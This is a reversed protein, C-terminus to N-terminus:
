LPFKSGPFHLTAFYDHETEDRRIIEVLLDRDPGHGYGKFLLEGHRLKGNYNSGMAWTHAGDNHLVPIDGVVIEPFSRQIAFKDNNECLSGVIDYKHDEVAYEKGMVTIHHYTGYMGPRPLDTMCADVGIYDRYTHKEHIATTVLYGFPGTMFRGNEMFIKLPALGNAVVLREYDIKMGESVEKTDVSIQQPEYAIGFGGGINLFDFPIKLANSLEGITEYGHKAIAIFAAPNRENSQIMIHLGFHEVGKEKMIKYGEFLQEKKMGYKQEPPKGITNGESTVIVNGPNYRFCITKPIGAHWELFPIHTIDDLNIVAGLDMAKKYEIAPTNNSTFMIDHGRLGVASAIKLEPASSCDAGSGEQKLVEVIYPNPLSKVAFYNRFGPAWSFTNNLARANDRIRQEHYIHFPTPHTRILKEIQAKNFFLDSHKNM